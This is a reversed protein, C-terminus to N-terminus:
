GFAEDYDDARSALFVRCFGAPAVPQKVPIIARLLGFGIAPAIPSSRRATKGSAITARRSAFM